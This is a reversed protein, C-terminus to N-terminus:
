LDQYEDIPSESRSFPSASRSNSGSNYVSSTRSSSNSAQYPIPSAGRSYAPPSYIPSASRSNYVSSARSSPNSAQSLRHPSVSSTPSASRSNYVSSVRPSASRSIRDSAILLERHKFENVFFDALPTFLSDVILLSGFDVVINSNTLINVLEQFDQSDCLELFADGLRLPESIDDGLRRVYLTANNYHRIHDEVYRLIREFLM